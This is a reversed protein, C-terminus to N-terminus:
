RVTQNVYVDFLTLITVLSYLTISFIDPSVSMIYKNVGSINDCKRRSTFVFLVEKPQSILM